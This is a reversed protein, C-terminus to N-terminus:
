LTGRRYSLPLSLQEASKWSHMDPNDKLVIHVM